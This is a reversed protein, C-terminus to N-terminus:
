TRECGLFRLPFPGIQHALNEFDRLLTLKADVSRSIRGTLSLEKGGNEAAPCRYALGFIL